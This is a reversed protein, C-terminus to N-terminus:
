ALLLRPRLFGGFFTMNCFYFTKESFFLNVMPPQRPRAWAPDRPAGGTFPTTIKNSPQHQLAAWEPCKLLNM